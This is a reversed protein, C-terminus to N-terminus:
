KISKFHKVIKDIEKEEIGTLNIEGGSIKERIVPSFYVEDNVIFVVEKGINEETFKEFVGSKEDNIKFFVSTIGYDDKKKKVVEFDKFEVLPVPNIKKSSTKDNYYFVDEGNEDIEYIGSYKCTPQKKVLACSALYAVVM